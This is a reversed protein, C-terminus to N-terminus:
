ICYTCMDYVTPQILTINFNRIITAYTPSVLSTYSGHLSHRWKYLEGDHYDASSTVHILSWKSLLWKPDRDNITRLLLNNRACIIDNAGYWGRAERVVLGITCTGCCTCFLVNLVTAICNVILISRFVINFPFKKAFAIWKFKCKYKCKCKSQRSVHICIKVSLLTDELEVVAIMVLEHVISSAADKPGILPFLPWIKM